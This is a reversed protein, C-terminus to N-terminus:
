ENGLRQLFVPAGPGSVEDSGIPRASVALLLASLVTAGHQAPYDRRIGSCLSPTQWQAPELPELDQILARREQHVVPWVTSPSSKAMGSNFLM